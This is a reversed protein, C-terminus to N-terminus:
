SNLQEELEINKYNNIVFLMILFFPLCPVRYRVLTGFTGSTLAVVPFFILSYVVIGILLPRSFIIKISKFLGRKFFVYIILLLTIFTEIGTVLIIPKTSEWIFPRMLGLVYLNPIVKIIGGPSLEINPIKYSSGYERSNWHEMRTQVNETLNEVALDKAMSSVVLSISSLGIILLGIIIPILVVKLKYDTISKLVLSIKWILLAPGISLFIYAKVKILLWGGLIFSLFGVIKKNKKILSTYFGELILALSLFVLPEKMLGSTWMLSSPLFLFAFANGRSISPFIKNFFLFLRWNGLFGILTFFFSIFLFRNFCLFSIAYGIQIVKATGGGFMLRQPIDMPVEKLFSTGFFIYKLSYLPYDAFYERLLSIIRYYTTISDWRGEYYIIYVVLAFFFGM